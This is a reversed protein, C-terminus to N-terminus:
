IVPQAGTELKWSYRENNGLNHVNLIHFSNISSYLSFFKALVSGFLYMEGDCLFGEADMQITSELGRVPFGKILRDVPKTEINQIAALRKQSRRQAQVDHLAPFDYSRIINKLPEPDLMSLYNLAMNSILTWHLSDDLVPRCTPTPKVINTFTIYAPSDETPIYVDGIGLADPLSGNTCHLDVSVTENDGVYHAEDSRLFSIFYQLSDDKVSERVETRYYLENRDRQREIEHQFSEFPSYVRDKQPRKESEKQSNKVKSGSVEDVSFIEYRRDENNSPRLPYVIREGSMGLPEATHEFLNVAPACFLAFDNERVKIDDPMACNFHFELRAEPDTAPWCRQLGKVKFQYFRRQFSLFEQIIRYGDFVNRPYPLMAEQPTFGMAEIADASLRKESNKGKVIIKDLYRFSWLYLTLATYDDGSLYLELSDCGVDAIPQGVLTHLTLAIISKDRSHQEEVDQIRLPYIDLESSNQFECPIGDVPESMLSINKPIVERQSLRNEVPDFRMMTMSPVPRLYNPWLLALLSRTLEPFDDEIKERLRASLFTFGELLREVDPDADESALFRSLQPNREAFEKGQLRLFALEDRYLRQLKESM